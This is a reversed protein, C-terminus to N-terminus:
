GGGAMKTARAGQAKLGVLGESKSELRAGAADEAGIGEACAVVAATRLRTACM